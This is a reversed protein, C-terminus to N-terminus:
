DMIPDASWKLSRPLWMSSIIGGGRGGGDGRRSQGVATHVGTHQQERIYGSDGDEFFFCPSHEHLFVRINDIAFFISVNLFFESECKLM